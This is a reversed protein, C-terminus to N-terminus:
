KTCTGEQVGSLVLTQVRTPPLLNHHGLRNIVTDDMIYGTVYEMTAVFSLSEVEREVHM